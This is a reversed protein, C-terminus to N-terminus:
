DKYIQIYKFDKFSTDLTKEVKSFEGYRSGIEYWVLSLNNEQLFSLLLNKRIYYFHSYEDWIYVAAKKDDLTYFSLDNLNFRLVLQKALMSSLFPFNSINNLQSHYSEWNFSLCPLMIKFKDYDIESKLIEVWSIEGGLLYYYGYDSPQYYKSYLKDSFHKVENKDLLMTKLHIFVKTDNGGQKLSADLLIWEDDFYPLKNIYLNKLYGHVDTLVWNQVDEYISPFLCKNFLQVKSPKTPFTPDIDIDTIRFGPEYETNVRKHLKLYGYLEYYAIWSFKKSYREIKSSNDFRDYDKTKSVIDEDLGDFVEPTYGIHHMRWYIMSLAEKLTPASEPDWQYSRALHGITYRAFDYHISRYGWQPDSDKLYDNCEKDEHWEQLNSINIEASINTNYKRNLFSIIVSIYDLILIHTTQVNDFYIEKLYQGIEISIGADDSRIIAGCLSAILREKVYLDGIQEIDKFVIFLKLLQKEGLLVLINTATDRLLRNTSSLLFSIFLLINSDNIEAHQKRDKIKDLYNFIDKTKSRIIECWVTNLETISMKLLLSKIINLNDYKEFIVIESVFSEIYYKITESNVDQSLLFNNLSMRNQDNAVVEIMQSSYKAITPNHIVEFISKGTYKPCLFIISKIIDESLPHNKEIESNNIREWIAINKLSTINEEYKPNNFFVAKTICLGAILDYVFSAYEKTGSIERKVLLGEDMIKYSVTKDQTIIPIEPKYDTDFIEYFRQPYQVERSNTSWLELSFKSVGEKIKECLLRNVKNNETATKEIISSVYQDIADLVIPQTILIEKGKYIESFIKLILPNKFLETDFSPNKVKIEYKKFYKKIANVINEDDFGNLQYSNKIEQIDKKNFIQESYSNRCTTILFLYNYNKMDQQLYNLEQEWIEATPQTENLGDIIIPIKTQKMCGLNNLCTLFDSFNYENTIELLDLIQKRILTVSNKIESAVILLGPNGNQLFIEVIHAALNTKGSGAGGFIFMTNQITEGAINRVYQITEFLDNINSILSDYLERDIRWDEQSYEAKKNQPYHNIRLVNNLLVNLREIDMEPQINLINESKVFLDKTDISGLIGQGLKNLVRYLEKADNVFKEQFVKYQHRLPIESYKQINDKLISIKEETECKLKSINLLRLAEEEAKGPTYLDSDYKKNLRNIRKSSYEKIFNLGIYKIGFYHKYISALLETNQNYFAEYIPKNWFKVIIDSKINQLEKILKDKTYHPATNIPQGPTCIIWIKLNSKYELSKKLGDVLEQRKGSEFSSNDPDSRNLWFKVQWGIVDGKLAELYPCDKSLTLYFESGPTKYDYEFNGFTNFLASAIQFNFSEFGIERSQSNRELQEWFINM